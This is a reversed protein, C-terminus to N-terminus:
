WPTASPRRPPPGLTWNTWKWPFSRGVARSHLARTGRWPVSAGIPMTASWFAEFEGEEGTRQLVLNEFFSGDGGERRALFTYSSDGGHVMAKIRATDVTFGYVDPLGSKGAANVDTTSLHSLLERVQAGDGLEKLGMIQIPNQFDKADRALAGNARSPPLDDTGCGLLSLSVALILIKSLFPRKPAM